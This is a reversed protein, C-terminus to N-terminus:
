PKREAGPSAASNGRRLGSHCNVFRKAEETFWAKLTLGEAALTAYLRRKFSPDVEIVLRGSQGKAM